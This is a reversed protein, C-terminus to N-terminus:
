TGLRAAPTLAVHEILGLMDLEYTLRVARPLYAAEGGALVHVDNQWTVGQLFELSVDDVNRLLIQERDAGGGTSATPTGVRRVIMGSELRYEVRVLSSRDDMQGPNFAGRRTFVLLVDRDRRGTALRGGSFVHDVSRGESDRVPHAVIQALDDRFFTRFRDLDAIRTQAQTTTERGTVAASLVSVSLSAVLAFVFLAILIELLSFGARSAHPTMM